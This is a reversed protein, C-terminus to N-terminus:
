EVVRSDAQFKKYDTYTLIYRRRYGKFLLLKGSMKVDILKPLWVENNVRTQEMVLHSGKSLRFLLGGFSVVDLTELDVKAWQFDRKDVWVRVKVKPFFAASALRPKYGPKPTGDIVWAMNGNLAEEGRLTFDFADPMEQLPERRKRQGKEWEAIRRARLEPTEKKREQISTRLKEAELQQEKLSLPRDSRAVLRKYPSGELLTM